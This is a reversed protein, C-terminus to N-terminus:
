CAVNCESPCTDVVGAKSCKKCPNKPVWTSCRKWKNVGSINVQFRMESDVMNCVAVDVGCTVPCQTSIRGSCTDDESCPDPFTGGESCLYPNDEVYGCTLTKGQYKFKLPSDVCTQASTYQAAIALLSIIKLNM